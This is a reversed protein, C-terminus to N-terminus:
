FPLLPQEVEKIADELIAFGELPKGRYV